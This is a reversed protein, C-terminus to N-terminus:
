SCKCDKPYTKIEIHLYALGIQTVFYGGHSKYRDVWFGKYERSCVVKFGFLPPKFKTNVPHHNQEAMQKVFQPHPPFKCGHHNM